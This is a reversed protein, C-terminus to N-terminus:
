LGMGSDSRLQYPSVSDVGMMLEAAVSALLGPVIFAPRGTTEAVFMVAALPVRYGAGLFAAIGVVIFLGSDAAGLVEGVIAGTLAGAIALPIFVGGVGGGAIAVSTVLVRLALVAFLVWLTPTETLLWLLVESGAGLTVPRDTLLWGVWTLLAMSVVASIVVFISPAEGSVRKAVRVMRAFIRAGIGAIIGVVVAGFLQTFGFGETGTVPFFPETGSLSVFSLYGAASAVLTPLLM